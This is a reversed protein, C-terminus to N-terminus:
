IKQNANCSVFILPVQKPFIFDSRKLAIFDFEEPTVDDFTRLELSPEKLAQIIARCRNIDLATPEKASPPANSVDSIQNCDHCPSPTLRRAEESSVADDVLVFTETSPFKGLEETQTGDVTLQLSTMSSTLSSSQSSNTSCGSHSSVLTM